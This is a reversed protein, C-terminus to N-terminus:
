ATIYLFNSALPLLCYAIPLIKTKYNFPSFAHGDVTDNTDYGSKKHQQREAQTNGAARNENIGVEEPKGGEDADIEELASKGVKARQDADELLKTELFAAFGASRRPKQQYVARNKSVFFALLM